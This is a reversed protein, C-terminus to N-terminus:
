KKVKKGGIGHSAISTARSCFFHDNSYESMDHVDPWPSPKASKPSVTRVEKESKPIRGRSVSVIFVTNEPELAICSDFPKPKEFRRLKDSSESFIVTSTICNRPDDETRFEGNTIMKNMIAIDTILMETIDKQESGPKGEERRMGRFTVDM